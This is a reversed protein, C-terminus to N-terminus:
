KDRYNGERIQENLMKQLDDETLMPEEIGFIKEKLLSQEKLLKELGGSSLTGPNKEAQDVDYNLMWLQRRDQGGYWEKLGTDIDLDGELFASSPLGYVGIGRWSQKNDTLRETLHDLQTALEPATRYLQSIIDLGVDLNAIGKTALRNEVASPHSLREAEVRQVADYFQSGEFPNQVQGEAYVPNKRQPLADSPSDMSARGLFGLAVGAALSIAIRGIDYKKTM